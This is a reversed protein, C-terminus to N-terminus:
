NAMIALDRSANKVAGEDTVIITAGPALLDYIKGAFEPNTRIRASLEDFSSAKTSDESAVRM